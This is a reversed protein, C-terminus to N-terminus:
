YNKNKSNKRWLLRFLYSFIAWIKLFSNIKSHNWVWNKLPGRAHQSSDIRLFWWFVSLEHKNGTTLVNDIIHDKKKVDSCKQTTSQNEDIFSSINKKLKRAMNDIHYQGLKDSISWFIRSFFITLITKEENM